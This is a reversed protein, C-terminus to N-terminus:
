FSPAQIASCRTTAGTRQIDLGTGPVIIAWTVRRKWTHVGSSGFFGRLNGGQICSGSKCEHYKPWINDLIEMSFLSTRLSAALYTCENIPRNEPPPRRARDEDSGRTPVRCIGQGSQTAHNTFRSFSSIRRMCMTFM